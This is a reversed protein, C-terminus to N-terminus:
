ALDISVTSASVALPRHTAVVAIGGKAAHDNLLRTVLAAGSEDLAATPEDLLWLPRECLLLRGLAARQKQGASLAGVPLDLARELGVARMAERVDGGMTGTWFRVNERLTLPARLAHAHGCYHLEREGGCRGALPQLLGALIRLLSSKGSGNPGRVLAIQGSAVAFSLDRFLLREGRQCALGVVELPASTIPRLPHLPVPARTIGGRVPLAVTGGSPANIPLHM